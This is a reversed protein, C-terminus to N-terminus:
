NYYEYKREIIEVYNDWIKIKKVFNGYQDYKYEYVIQSESKGILNSDIFYKELIVNNNEDYDYIIMTSNGESEINKWEVIRNSVDYKSTITNNLKTSKFYKMEIENGNLDYKYIWKNELYNQNYASKELLKGNTDYLFTTKNSEENDPNIYKILLLNGKDDYSYIYKGLHYDDSYLNEILKRGDKDNEIKSIESKSKIEINFGMEDYKFFTNREIQNKNNYILHESMKSFKNYVYKEREIINDYIDKKQWEVQFGDSNYMKYSTIKNEIKKIKEVSGEGKVLTESLSKVKGKLGDKVWDKNPKQVINFSTLVFTVCLIQIVKLINFSSKNTSYKTM